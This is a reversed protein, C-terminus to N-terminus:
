RVLGRDDRVFGLQRLGDRGSWFGHHVLFAWCRLNTQTANVNCFSMEASISVPNSAVLRPVHILEVAGVEHCPIQQTGKLAVFSSASALVYLVCLMYAVSGM